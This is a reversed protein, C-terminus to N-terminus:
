LETRRPQELVRPTQRIDLAENFSRPVHMFWDPEGDTDPQKLLELSREERKTAVRTLQELLGLAKHRMPPSQAHQAIRDLPALQASLGAGKGCEVARYACGATHGLAAAKQVRPVCTAALHGAMGM